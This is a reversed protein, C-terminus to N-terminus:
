PADTKHGHTRDMLVDYDGGETRARMRMSEVVLGFSCLLEATCMHRSWVAVSLAEVPFRGRLNQVDCRDDYTELSPIPLVWLSWESVAM